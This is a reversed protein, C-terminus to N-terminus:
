VHLIRGQPILEGYVAGDKLPIYVVSMQVAQGGLRVSYLYAKEGSSPVTATAGGSPPKYMLLAAAAIAVVV